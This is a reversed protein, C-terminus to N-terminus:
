KWQQIKVEAMRSKLGKALNLIIPIYHEPINYRLEVGDSLDVVMYSDEIEKSMDHTDYYEALKAIEKENM